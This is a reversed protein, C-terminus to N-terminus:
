GFRELRAEAGPHGLTGTVWQAAARAPPEVADLVATAGLLVMACGNMRLPNTLPRLRAEVALGRGLAEVGGLFADFTQLDKLPTWVAHVADGGRAVDAGVAELIRVYDDGREFPPDVLVLRRGRGAGGEALVSFGDALRIDIEMRRRGRGAALRALARHEEPRLECGIFRDGDRLADLALLPSGPYFRLGGSRNAAQVARKLPACSAPPDPEAMLRVVGEAAEGSKRAAEGWLDYLGAGAHTDLVTLPRADKTLTDLLALLVAHKLLDAFNGAHFEHRYNLAKDEEGPVACGRRGNAPSPPEAHRPAIPFAPARM